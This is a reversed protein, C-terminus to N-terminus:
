KGESRGQRPDKDGRTPSERALGAAAKLEKNIVSQHFLFVSLGINEDSSM